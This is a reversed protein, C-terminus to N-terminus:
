NLFALWCSVTNCGASLGIKLRLEERVGLRQQEVVLQLVATVHVDLPAQLHAEGVAAAASDVQVVAVAGRVAGGCAVVRLEEERGHVWGGAM